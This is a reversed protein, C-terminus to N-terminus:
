PRHVVVKINKASKVAHPKSVGITIKDLQYTEQLLHAIENAVTEILQFPKSELHHTVTQCLESYDITDSLKDQCNRLDIPIVIDILLHQSISQEWPHVGIRCAVSLGSIELSDM